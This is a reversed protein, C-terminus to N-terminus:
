RTHDCASAGTSSGPGSGTRVSCAGLRAISSAGRLSRARQETDGIKVLLANDGTPDHPWSCIPGWRPRSRWPCFRNSSEDLLLEWSLDALEPALKLQLKIRLGIDEKESVQDLNIRFWAPINEAFVSDFLHAVWNM